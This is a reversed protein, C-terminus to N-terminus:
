SILQQIIFTCHDCFYGGGGSKTKNMRMKGEIKEEEKGEDAEGKKREGGGKQVMGRRRKNRQM